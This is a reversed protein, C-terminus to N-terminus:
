FFFILLFVTIRSVRETISGSDDWNLFLKHLAFSAVHQWPLVQPEEGAEEMKVDGGNEAQTFVNEPTQGSSKLKKFVLYKIACEAAAAKAAM